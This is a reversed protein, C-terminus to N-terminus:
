QKVFLNNIFEPLRVKLGFDHPDLMIEYKRTNEYAKELDFFITTFTGNM